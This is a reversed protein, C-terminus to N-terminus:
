LSHGGGGGWFLEGKLESLKCIIQRVNGDTKYLEGRRWGEGNLSVCCFERGHSAYYMCKTKQKDHFFIQLLKNM